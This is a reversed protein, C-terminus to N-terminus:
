CMKKDLFNILSISVLTKGATTLETMNWEKDFSSKVMCYTLLYRLWHHLQQLLFKKMLAQEQITPFFKM